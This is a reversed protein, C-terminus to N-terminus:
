KKGKFIRYYLYQWITPHYWLASENTLPDVVKSSGSKIDIISKLMLQLGLGTQLFPYTVYNDKETISILEQFLIGGTDIGKDVLHVTVGAHAIDNKAVAWYAGHVGRYKPTIGAHINIFIVNVANLVKESIIRTGNVVVIDPNIEKLISICIQDNVSKIRRIQSFPIPTEDLQYDKKIQFVRKKSTAKLIPVIMVSFLIQGFTKFIGLKKFRRKALPWGRLAEEIVVGEVTFQKNIFNFLVTTSFCESCLFVIRPKM